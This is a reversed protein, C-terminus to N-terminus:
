FKERGKKLIPDSSKYGMVDERKIQERVHYFEVELLKRPFSYIPLYSKQSRSYIVFIKM